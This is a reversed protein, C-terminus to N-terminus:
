PTVLGVKVAFRVLGALDRIGLREMIEARHSEVTKVGLSLIEAIERSSRGEAVLQLIERQRATLKGLPDEAVAGQRYLDVISRSIRACLYIHGESVKRLATRLEDSDSGKLLYGDAGAHLARHVYADDAHMSLIIVRQEPDRKKIQSTAELGNLEPMSVDMLTIDPSLDRAARVAERGDAVEGIVEVEDMEALLARIGARVLAHDDAILVRITDM